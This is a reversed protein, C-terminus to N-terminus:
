VIITSNTTCGPCMHLSGHYKAHEHLFMLCVQVCKRSLFNSAVINETAEGRLTDFQSESIEGFICVLCDAELQHCVAMCTGPSRGPRQGYRPTEGHDGERRAASRSVTRDSHHGHVRWTSIRGENKPPLAPSHRYSPDHMLLGHLQQFVSSIADCLM